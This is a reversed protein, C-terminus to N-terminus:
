IKKKFIMILRPSNNEDFAKLEYDGFTEVLEMKTQEFLHIFEALGFAAVQEKFHHDIGNEDTLSIEKIINDREIYKEIHFNLNGRQIIEEPILDNIAKTKNLYDVVLIGGPKLSSSFSKAALLHDRNHEFYGFSTFFNFTYDFFNIYFPFRMDHVYFHLHDNEMLRAKDIGTKALDIGIVDHGFKELQQSFRGEGCAIDLIRSPVPPNLHKMLNEVFLAAERINRNNYLIPYYPSDFWNEFWAKTESM